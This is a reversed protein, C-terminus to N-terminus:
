HRYSPLCPLCVSLILSTLAHTECYELVADDVSGSLANQAICCTNIGYPSGPNGLHHSGVVGATKKSGFVFTQLGRGAVM